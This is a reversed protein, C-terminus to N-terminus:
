LKETKVQVEKKAMQLRQKATYGTASELFNRFRKNTDMALYDSVGPESQTVVALKKGEIWVEISKLAGYSLTLKEGDQRVESLFETELAGKIRELDLSFGRKLKYEM